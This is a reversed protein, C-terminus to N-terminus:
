SLKKLLLQNKLLHNKVMKLYMKLNLINQYYKKGYFSMLYKKYIIKKKQFKLM